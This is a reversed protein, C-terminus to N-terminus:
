PLSVSILNVSVHDGAYGETSRERDQGMVQDDSTSYFIILFISM